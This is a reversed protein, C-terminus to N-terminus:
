VNRLDKATNKMRDIIQQKSTSMKDNYYPVSDGINAELALRAQEVLKWIFSSAPIGGAAAWAYNEDGQFGALILAGWACASTIKRGSVSVENEGQNYFGGQCWDVQESEYLDAAKELIDAVKAAMVNSM